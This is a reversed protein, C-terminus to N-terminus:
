HISKEINKFLKKHAKKLINHFINKVIFNSTVIVEEVIETKHGISKLSFKLVLHVGKQVSSEMEVSQNNIQNKLSVKYNFSFPIFVIKIKEYFLYEQEGIKEAKYIVPHVDAFKQMDSLCLYVKDIPM